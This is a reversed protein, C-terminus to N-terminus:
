CSFLMNNEHQFFGPFWTSFTNNKRASPFPRLHRIVALQHRCIIGYQQLIVCNSCTHELVHVYHLNRMGGTGAKFVCYVNSDSTRTVIYLGSFEVESDRFLCAPQYLHQNSIIAKRATETISMIRLNCRRATTFLASLPLQLRTEDYNMANHEGEVATNASWGHLPLPSGFTYCHGWVSDIFYIEEKSFQKNGFVSFSTPHILLLYDYINESIHKVSEFVHFYDQVNSSRQLQVVTNELAKLDVGEEKFKDFLNLKIHVVCFKLSVSLGMKALVCQAGRQHGRDSQVPINEFDIGARICNLFFWCYNDITETNIFATAVIQNTHNGDRGILNMMIGNYSPTPMHCCDIGFMLLCEQYKVLPRYVVIYRYFRNGSDLECSVYTGPNDNALSRLFPPVLMFEKDDPINNKHETERIARYITSSLSRRSIDVKHVNSVCSIVRKRSTHVGQTFACNFGELTKLDDKRM